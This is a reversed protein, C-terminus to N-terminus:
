NIFGILLGFISTSGVTKFEWHNFLGKRHLYKDATSAARCLREAQVIVADTAANGLGLPVAAL